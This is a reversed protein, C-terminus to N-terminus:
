DAPGPEGGPAARVALRVLRPVFRPRLLREDYGALRRRNEDLCITALRPLTVEGISEPVRMTFDDGEDADRLQLATKMRGLAQLSMGLGRRVLFWAKQHFPLQLRRYAIWNAFFLVHRAEEQMVGDFRDVLPGPFIGSAAAIHFLGFAFFSDFCEGYGMRLFGWEPDRPREPKSEPVEIGYHGTLSELLEAHRSEEYAQMAIAERLIPDREADAMAKVRAGATRESTVAEGWFPLARLRQLEDEGLAPWRVERVDYPHFTDVFERCFLAKHEGSGVTLAPMIEEPLRDVTYSDFGEPALRPVV